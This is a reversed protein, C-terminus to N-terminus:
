YFSLPQHTQNHREEDSNKNKLKENSLCLFCRSLTKVVKVMIKNVVRAAPLRVVVSEGGAKCVSRVSLVM